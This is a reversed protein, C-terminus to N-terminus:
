AAAGVRERRSMVGAKWWARAGHRVRLVGGRGGRRGGGVGVDEEGVGVAVVGVADDGGEVGLEFAVEPGEESAVDFDEEVAGADEVEVVPFDAAVAGQTGGGEEDDQEGGGVEAGVGATPFPFFPELAFELVALDAFAGGAEPEDFDGAEVGRVVGGAEALPFVLQALAEAHGEVGPAFAAALGEAVGGGAGFEGAEGLM